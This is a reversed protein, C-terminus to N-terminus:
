EVTVTIEMGLARHNSVSCYLTYTGPELTVTFSDSEGAGVTSTSGGPDEELVLDHPMSGNNTLDFTVVGAPLETSSATFAFETAGVEIVTGGDVPSDAAADPESAGGCAALVGMVVAAALARRALHVAHM